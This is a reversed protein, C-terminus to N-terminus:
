VHVYKSRTWWSNSWRRGYGGKCGRLKMNEKRTVWQTYNISGMDVHTPPRGTSHSWSQGGGGLLWWVCHKYKKCSSRQATLEAKFYPVYRYGCISGIVLADRNIFWDFTFLKHSNNIQGMAQCGTQFINSLYTGKIVLSTIWDMQIWGYIDTFSYFFFVRNSYKFLKSHSGDQSSSTIKLQILKLILHLVM